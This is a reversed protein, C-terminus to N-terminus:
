PTIFITAVIYPLNITTQTVADNPLPPREQQGAFVAELGGASRL